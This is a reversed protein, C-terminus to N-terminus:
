QILIRKVLVKGEQELHLLYVGKPLRNTHVEYTSGEAVEVQINISEGLLNYLVVHVEQNSHGQMDIYFIGQSPNPFVKIGNLEEHDGISSVMVIVEFAVTDNGCENTAVMTVTYTGNETYVHTYDDGEFTTGDGFDWSVSEANTSTNQVTLSDAQLDYMMNAEPIDNIEVAGSEFVMADGFGNFVSLTVDYTGADNYVVTPNADSSTAPIGGPFEWYLSDVMTSTSTYEVTLPACGASTSYTFSAFPMFESIEVTQAIQSQGCMGAITLVVDFTGTTGYTHSPFDETSSEGDGFDWSYDVGDITMPTFDVQNGNQIYTYMAEPVGMAEVVATAYLTDAGAANTVILEVDFEGAEDYVVRPAAVDSSAPNGGPFTWAYSYGDGHPSAAFLAELPACGVNDDVEFTAVPAFLIEVEQTMTDSGCDNSAILTVTYTGNMAYEHTPTAMDSTSGDGFNWEYNDANQSSNMFTTLGEGLTNNSSFSAGPEELIEITDDMVLTDAGAANTVILQVDYIGSDEYVVEPNAENSTDPMGGPFTWAYTNGDDQDSAIFSVTLPMCGTNTNMNFAAEPPFLITVEQTTTDNGCDNHAVLEITYTGEVSYQHTPSEMDSTNGDGFNWTYSDANQSDNQFSAMGSGLTNEITFGSQPQDLVVVINDMTITDAGATNIVILMVSYSGATQYEIQPLMESSTAPNGGEFSWEYTFSADQPYAEFDVVTPVCGGSSQANMSAHPPFVVTIETQTIDTGCDNSVELTAIYTGEETYTHEPNEEDSTMGDGFNWSFTDADQSNNEFTTVGTGLTNQATFDATPADHTVIVDNLTMTTAGAANTVTLEVSYSGKANYTITPNAEDSQSPTGGEFIWEYSYADGQPLAQFTFEAPLCDTIASFDIDVAPPFVIEVEQSMTDSGCDNHAIMEITYIGEETYTAEPNPDTSTTGNGFDWEYQTADTSANVFDVLDDGVTYNLTFLADPLGAVNIVNEQIIQNQIGGNIVTLSVDFTGVQSYTVIPNQETSTAPDGGEFEWNWELVDGISNDTFQVQFPACNDDIAGVTFDAAIPILAEVSQVSLTSGCDNFATLTVDYTGPSSFIHTPNTTNSSEGDGFEWFYSFANISQNDFDFELPNIETFDFDADPEGDVTIYFADVYISQDLANSVTLTVSYTGPTSYTVVPNADTSTAPFGGQFNWNRTEVDGESVDSFQVTLPACGSTVDSTFAADLPPLVEVFQTTVDSGCSNFVTLTVEYTGPQVYTYIPSVDTSGGGDGFDWIVSTYSSSFNNFVFQNPGILSASFQALPPTSAVVYNNISRTDSGASNTVTLTVDYSGATNYTVVPNALTSSSPNGGEFIWLYSDVTGFSLDTYVVTLPTCGVTNNATFDAVPPGISSCASLCGGAGSIANVYSNIDNQSLTSWTNSSNVSPAMIFGSGAADHVADFNHGLEHAQLVRLNAANNNFHELVNYSINTCVAGVWALGITSGSFNRDSWLSAVDFTTGFGGNNGWDTFDDLLADSSNSSTWPDCSSCNSVWQTVVSFVLEDAFEDDYNTQVNNINGLAFNEVATVSGMAQVMEYDAALAIEVTYCNGLLKDTHPPKATHEYHKRTENTEKWGCTHDDNPIVDTTKYVIYWDEQAEPMLTYAPEIFFNDGGSQWYGYIFHDDLTLRLNKGELVYGSFTKVKKETIESPDLPASTQLFYDTAMIDDQQIHFSWQQDDGLNFDVLVDQDSLAMEHFRHADIKYVDYDKFMADLTSNSNHKVRIASVINKQGFAVFALLQLTLLLTFKKM